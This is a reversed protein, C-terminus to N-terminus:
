ALSSKCYNLNSRVTSNQWLTPNGPKISARFKILGACSCLPIIGHITKLLVGDFVLDIQKIQCGLKAIYGAGALHHTKGAISEIAVLGGHFSATNLGQKIGISAFGVDLVADFFSRFCCACSEGQLLRSKTLNTNGILQVFASDENRRRTNTRHPQALIQFWPWDDVFWHCRRVSGCFWRAPIRGPPM